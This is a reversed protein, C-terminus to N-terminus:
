LEVGEEVVRFRVLELEPKNGYDGYYSTMAAKANGLKGYAKGREREKVWNGQKAWTPGKQQRFYEGTDKRRIMWFYMESETVGGVNDTLSSWKVGTM